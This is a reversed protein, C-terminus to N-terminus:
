VSHRWPSATQGEHPEISSIGGSEGRAFAACSLRSVSQLAGSNDERCVDPVVVRFRDQVSDAHDLSDQGHRSDKGIRIVPHITTTDLSLHPLPYTSCQRGQFQICVTLRGPAFPSGESLSVWGEGFFDFGHFGEWFKIM